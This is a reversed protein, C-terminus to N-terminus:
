DRHWLYTETWRVDRSSYRHGTAGAVRARFCKPPPSLSTTTARAVFRPRHVPRSSEHRSTCTPRCRHAPRVFALLLSNIRREERKMGDGDSGGGGRLREAVTQSSARAGVGAHPRHPGIITNCTISDVHIFDVSQFEPTSIKPLM